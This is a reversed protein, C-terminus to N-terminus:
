QKGSPKCSRPGGGDYVGFGQSNLNRLVTEVVRRESAEKKVLAEFEAQLQRRADVLQELEEIAAVHRKETENFRRNIEKGHQYDLILVVAFTAVAGVMAGMLFIGIADIM